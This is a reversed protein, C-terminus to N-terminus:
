YRLSLCSIGGDIKRFESVDIEIVNYGAKKIADKSKRYGAPVLVYDNVRICNAAYSEDEDLIIPNFDSFAPNGIFEGALVMNSGGLYALGTKLHLAHAVSIASGTYGLNKLLNILQNAGVTNTRTTIGIYFHDGVRLVDGGELTGPEKIHAVNVYSDELVAEVSVEEGKRSGIGLNTIIACRETLVACDEVFTSDPLGEEAAMITVELGCNKLAAIYKEHQQLAKQYDPKGSNSTTIGKVISHGPTRVIAKTYSM